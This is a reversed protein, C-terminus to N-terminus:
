PKTIPCKKAKRLAEQAIEKTEFYKELLTKLEQVSGFKLRIYFRISFFVLVFTLAIEPIYYYALDAETM